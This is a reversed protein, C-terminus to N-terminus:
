KVPQKKRATFLYIDESKYVADQAEPAVHSFTFDRSLLAYFEAERAFDRKENAFLVQTGPGCIQTLTDVLPAHLEPWTILDSFVVLDPYAKPQMSALLGQAESSNGWVLPMMSVRARVSDSCLAVSKATLELVRPQDTVVITANPLLRALVLAVLGTGCGLEVVKASRLASFLKLTGPRELYKALVLASDWVTAGTGVKLLAAPDTVVTLLGDGNFTYEYCDLGNVM